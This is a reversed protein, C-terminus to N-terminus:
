LWLAEAGERLAQALEDAEEESELGLEEALTADLSLRDLDEAAENAEDRTLTRKDGNAAELRLTGNAQTTLTVNDM